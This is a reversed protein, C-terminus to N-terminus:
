VYHPGNVIRKASLISHVTCMGRSLFLAHLQEDEGSPPAAISKLGLNNVLSGTLLSVTQLIIIKKLYLKVIVTLYPFVEYLCLCAIFTYQGVCYFMESKIFTALDYLGKSFM